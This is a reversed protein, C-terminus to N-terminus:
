GAHAGRRPSRLHEGRPRRRAPRQRRAACRAGPSRPVPADRPPYAYRRPRREPPRAADTPLHALRQVAAYKAARVDASVIDHAATATLVRMQDATATAPNIHGPLSQAAEQLAQATPDTGLARITEARQDLIAAINPPPKGAKLSAEADYQVGEAISQMHALNGDVTGGYTDAIQQALQTAADTNGRIAQGAGEELLAAVPQASEIERVGPMMAMETDAATQAANTGAQDFVRGRSSLVEKQAANAEPSWAGQDAAIKTIDELGSQTKTTFLGGVVDSMGPIELVYNAPNVLDSLIKSGVTGPYKAEAQPVSMGNDLDRALATTDISPGQGQAGGAVGQVTTVGARALGGVVPLDYISDGGVVPVDDPVVQPGKGGGASAPLVAGLPNQAVTEHLGFNADSQGPAQDGTLGYYTQELPNFDEWSGDGKIADNAEIALNGVARNGVQTVDDLLGLGGKAAGTFLNKADTFPNSSANSAANEIGSVLPLKQVEDLAQSGIDKVRDLFSGGETRGKEPGPATPDGPVGIGTDTETPATTTTDATIDPVPPPNIEDSTTFGDDPPPGPNGIDTSSRSDSNTQQQQQQAAVQDSTTFGDNSAGSDGSSSDDPPPGPNGIGSSGDDSSAAALDDSTQFGDGYSM